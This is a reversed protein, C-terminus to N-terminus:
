HDTDILLRCRIQEFDDLTDSLLHCCQLISFSLFQGFNVKPIPNKYRAKKSVIDRGQTAKSFDNKIAVSIRDRVPRPLKCVETVNEKWKLLPQLYIVRKFVLTQNLNKICNFDWISTLGGCSSTPGNRCYLNCLM